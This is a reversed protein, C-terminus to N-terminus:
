QSAIKPRDLIQKLPNSLRVPLPAYDQVLRGQPDILLARPFKLISFEEIIVQQAGAWLHFAPNNIGKLAKQWSKKDLDANVTLFEIPEQAFNKMQYSLAPFCSMAEESWSSWILIYVYKGQFSSLPISEGIKNELSIPPLIERHSTKATM